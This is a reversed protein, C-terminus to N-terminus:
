AGGGGTPPSAANWGIVIWPWGTEPPTGASPNTVTDASNLIEVHTYKLKEVMRRAKQAAEAETKVFEIQAESVKKVGPTSQTQAM